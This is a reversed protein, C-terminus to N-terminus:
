GYIKEGALHPETTILNIRWFEGNKRTARMYAEAQTLDTFIKVLAGNVRVLHLDVQSGSLLKLKM